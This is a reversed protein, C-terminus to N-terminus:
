LIRGACYAAAEGGYATRRVTPRGGPTLRAKPAYPDLSSSIYPVLSAMTEAGDLGIRWIM